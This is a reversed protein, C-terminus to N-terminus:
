CCKIYKTKNLPPLIKMNIKFFFTTNNLKKKRFVFKFDYCHLSKVLEFEQERIKINKFNSDFSTFIKYNFKFNDIIKIGIGFMNNMNNNKEINYKNIIKNSFIGFIWDINKYEPTKIYFQFSESENLRKLNSYKIYLLTSNKSIFSFDTIFAKGHIKKNLININNNYFNYLFINDITIRNGIYMKNAFMFNNREFCDYISNINNLCFYCNEGINKNVTFDWNVWKAIKLRTNVSYDVASYFYHTKKRKLYKEIINFNHSITIKDNIKFPKQLTYKLLCVNYHDNIINREFNNKFFNDYHNYQYSYQFFLKSIIKKKFLDNNYINLRVNPIFLYSKDYVM